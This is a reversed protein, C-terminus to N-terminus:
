PLRLYDKLVFILAIILNFFTFAIVWYLYKIKKNFLLLYSLTAFSINFLILGWSPPCNLGQSKDLPNLPFFACAPTTFSLSAPWNILVNFAVSLDRTMFVALFLNAVVILSIYSTIFITLNKSNFKM